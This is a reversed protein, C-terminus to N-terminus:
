APLAAGAAASEGREAAFGIEQELWGRPFCTLASGHTCNIVEVGRERLEEALTDFRQLWRGFVYDTTNRLPAEHPGHWHTGHMDFGCLLVRRAGAHVALHIAQYGSNGGTRLASPDPDFGVVGTNRLWRLASHMGITAKLGAFAMAEPRLSWWTHDAAYLLDAWPALRFTDNVVIARVVRAAHAGRVVEAVEASMSPGSALVVVREGAWIRPM